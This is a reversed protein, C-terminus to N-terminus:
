RLLLLKRVLSKLPTSLRYYYVGSSLDAANFEIEYVKGAEATENFLQAIENGLIDYVTLTVQQSEALGFKIVTSPNFPNPYNQELVFGDPINGADVEIIESYEFTGDNDIQKLRYAYSGYSIGVDLFNYEKPSNSNGHGEIFGIKEWLPDSEALQTREVDFGYNNVEMATKWNLNVINRNISSTFSTLEVPLPDTLKHDLGSYSGGWTMSHDSYDWTDHLYVTSPDNYGFGLMTHGVVHILVPRGADIEAKYQAFTFGYTLGMADIRQNYQDVVTYGKSVFFAKLGCCGDNDIGPELDACRTPAGNNFYWFSTSGDSNGYAAQNTKMYDAVCDWTHETWSGVVFPDPGPNLYDIWYDDVHGRTTRGDIGNHSACFPSEGCTVGPYITHGWVSNDMPCVGGNTPGTYINEGGPQCDYYGAMMAGSTASCGYTWDFAPVNSLSYTADDTPPIEVVPARYFDPPKGSIIIKDLETGDDLIITEIQFAKFDQQNQQSIILSFPLLFILILLKNKM